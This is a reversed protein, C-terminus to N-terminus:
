YRSGCNPNNCYRSGCVPCRERASEGYARKVESEYEVQLAAIREIEEAIPLVKPEAIAVRRLMRAAELMMESPESM